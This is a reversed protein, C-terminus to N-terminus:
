RRAEGGDPAIVWLEKREDRDSIFAIQTGDPSWRPTADSAAASTLQRPAGGATEVLWLNSLTRDKEVDTRGLAFVVRTGDPSLHFDGIVKFAFLDDNTIPRRASPASM